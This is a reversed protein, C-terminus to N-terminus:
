NKANSQGISRQHSSVKPEEPQITVRRTQPGDSKENNVVLRRMTQWRCASHSHLKHVMLSESGRQKTSERFFLRCGRGCVGVGTKTGRARRGMIKPNALAVNNQFIALGSNACLSAHLRAELVCLVREHEVIRETHREECAISLLMIPLFAEKRSLFFGFCEPCVCLVVLEEGYQCLACSTSDDSSSCGGSPVLYNRVPSRTGAAVMAASMWSPVVHCALLVTGVVACWDM